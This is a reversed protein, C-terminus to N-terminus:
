DDVLRIVLSEVNSYTMMLTINGAIDVDKVTFYTNAFCYINNDSPDSDEVPIITPSVTVHPLNYSIREALMKGIAGGVATLVINGVEEIAETEVAGFESEESSEEELISDVLTKGNVLPFSVVGEGELGGTFKQRVNVYQEGQFHEELYSQLETLTFLQVEPVSLSVLRDMLRSLAQSAKGVGINIVESLVDQFEESVNM